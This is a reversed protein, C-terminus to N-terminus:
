SLLWREATEKIAIEDAPSIGLFPRAPITISHAPITVDTELNAQRRKVFRRGITGDKAQKRFIRGQRAPKEITGGLQHIASYEPVAGITVQDGTPAYNISGALRGRERLIKVASRGRKMRAKVTAPALPTWPTGDPAHEGRFNEKVSKVLIEGVQRFFPQRQDMRAIMRALEESAARADLRLDLTIASM